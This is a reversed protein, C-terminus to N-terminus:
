SEKSSKSLLYIYYICIPVVIIDVGVHFISFPNGHLYNYRYVGLMGGITPYVAGAWYFRITEKKFIKMGIFFYLVGFLSAGMVNSTPPYIFLQTVHTVGSIMLLIGAFKSMYKKKNGSLLQV